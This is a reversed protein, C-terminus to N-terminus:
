ESLVQSDVFAVVLSTGMIVALWCELWYSIILVFQNM